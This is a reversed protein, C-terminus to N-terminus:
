LTYIKMNVELEKPYSGDENQFKRYKAELSSLSRSAQHHHRSVLREFAPLNALKKRISKSFPLHRFFLDRVVTDLKMVGQSEYKIWLSYYFGFIRKNDKRNSTIIKKIKEKAGTSLKSNKKYTTIYNYFAGTIGGDIPDSWSLGKVTCCIEWRYEGLAKIFAKELDGTFFLPILFRARTQKNTGSIDQWFFVKDGIVPLIVVYPFVEMQIITNAKKSLRYLTERYFLSYDREIISQFIKDIKQKQIMIEKFDHPKNLETMFFLARPPSENVIKLAVSIMNDMEYKVIAKKIDEESLGEEIKRQKSSKRKEKELLFKQYTVGLETNSPIEEGNYINKLWDFLSIFILQSEVEESYSELFNKAEADVLDKSIFSFNLFLLFDKNKKIPLEKQFLHTSVKIYLNVYNENIKKIVIREKDNADQLNKIQGLAKYSTSLEKLFEPELFDAEKISPLMAASLQVEKKRKLPRGIEESDEAGEGKYIKELSSTLLFSIKKFDFLKEISDKIESFAMLFDEKLMNLSESIEQNWNIKKNISLSVTKALISEEGEVLALIETYIRKVKKEINLFYYHIESGLVEYIKSLIHLHQKSLQKLFRDEKEFFDNIFITEKKSFDEKEFFPTFNMTFAKGETFSINEDAVKEIFQEMIKQYGVNKEFSIGCISIHLLFKRNLEFINDYFTKLKQYLDKYEKLSQEMQRLVKIGLDINHYFFTQSNKIPYISISGKRESFINPFVLSKTCLSLGGLFDNTSLTKIKFFVRGGELKKDPYSIVSVVGSNLRIFYSGRSNEDLLLEGEKFVVQEQFVNLKKLSM